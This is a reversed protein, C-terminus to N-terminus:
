AGTVFSDFEEPINLYSEINSSLRFQKVDKMIDLSDGREKILIERKGDYYISIRQNNQLLLDLRLNEV